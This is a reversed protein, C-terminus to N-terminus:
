HRAILFADSSEASKRLDPVLIDKIITDKALEAPFALHNNSNRGCIECIRYLFTRLESTKQSNLPFPWTTTPLEGASLASKRLDPVLIDKIRTDKALEAPFALHNNSNRGCIECISM